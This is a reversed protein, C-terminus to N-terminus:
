AASAEVARGFLFPFSLSVGGEDAFTGILYIRGGIWALWFSAKGRSLPVDIELTGYVLGGKCLFSM